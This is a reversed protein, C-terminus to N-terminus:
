RNAEFTEHKKWFFEFAWLLWDSANQILRDLLLSSLRVFFMNVNLQCRHLAFFFISESLEKRALFLCKWVFFHFSISEFSFHTIRSYIQFKNLTQREFHACNVVWPYLLVHSFEVCVFSCGFERCTVDLFAELYFQNTYRFAANSPVAAAVTAFDFSFCLLWFMLLELMNELFFPHFFSFFHGFIRFHFFHCFIRFYNNFSELKTLTIFNFTIARINDCFLLTM